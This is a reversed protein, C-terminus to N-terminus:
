KEQIWKRKLRSLKGSEELNKLINNVEFLLKSSEDGKKLAIAYPEKTYRKPLIKFESNNLVLGLLISDDAVLADARKEKLADFAETYSRYGQLHANPAFQHIKKDATTGLVIVVKKNKLDQSSQIESQKHVMIAQGAFYYPTSFEVVQQREETVTMTAIIMDVEDSNLKWIRNQATVPKFQVKKEDGLIAKAIERALDADLGDVNQTINNFFGFPETDYKIGVILEDRKIIREYIDTLNENKQKSCGSTFVLLLFITILFLKKM